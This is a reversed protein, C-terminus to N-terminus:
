VQIQKAAFNLLILMRFYLYAKTNEDKFQIKDTEFHRIQYENGIKTLNKFETEIEKYKLSSSCLECLGKAGHQKNEANLITKIREFADWIKELALQKDRFFLEISKNLLQNFTDDQTSTNQNFLVETLINLGFTDSIDINNNMKTSNDIITKLEEKAKDVNKESNIFYENKFVGHTLVKHLERGNLTKLINCVWRFRTSGDHQYNFGLKQFFLTLEYGKRYPFKVNDGCVIKAIKEEFDPDEERASIIKQIELDEKSKWKLHIKMDTDQIIARLVQMKWIFNTDFMCINMAKFKELNQRSLISRLFDIVKNFERSTVDGNIM